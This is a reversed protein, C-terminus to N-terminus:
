RLTFRYCILITIYFTLLPLDKWVTLNVSACAIRLVQSVEAWHVRMPWM